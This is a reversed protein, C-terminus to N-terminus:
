KAVKVKPKPPDPIEVVRLGAFSLGSPLPQAPMAKDEAQKQTAEYVAYLGAPCRELANEDEFLGIPLWHDEGHYVVQHHFAFIM